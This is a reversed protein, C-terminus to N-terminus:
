RGLRDALAQEIVSLREDLEVSERLRTVHALLGRAAGLQVMENNSGLLKRLTDVAETATGAFRFGADAVGGVCRPLALEIRLKGVLLGVIM